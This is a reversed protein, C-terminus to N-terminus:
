QVFGEIDPLVQALVARVHQDLSENALQAAM